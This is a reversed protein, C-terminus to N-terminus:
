GQVSDKQEDESVRQESPVGPEGPEDVLAAPPLLAGFHARLPNSKKEGALIVLSNHSAEPPDNKATM